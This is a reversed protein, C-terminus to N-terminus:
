AEIKPTSEEVVEKSKNKICLAVIMFAVTLLNGILVSLVLLTIIAFKKDSNNSSHKIVLIAFVLTAVALSLLYVAMASTITRVISIVAQIDEQTVIYSENDTTTTSDTPTYIYYYSEGDAEEVRTYGSEEYVSCVIKENVMGSAGIMILGAFFMVVTAIISIIGGALMFSKKVGSM